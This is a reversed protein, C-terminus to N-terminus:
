ILQPPPRVALAYARSVGVPRVVDRLRPRPIRKPARVRCTRMRGARARAMAEEGPFLGVALTAMLVLSPALLLAVSPSTLAAGILVGAVALVGLVSNARLRHRGPRM